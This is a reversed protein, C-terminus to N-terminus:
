VDSVSAGTGGGDPIPSIPRFENDCAQARQEGKKLTLPHLRSKDVILWAVAKRERRSKWGALKRCSPSRLRLRCCRQRALRDTAVCALSIGASTPGQVRSWTRLSSQISSSCSLLLLAASLAIVLGTGAPCCSAYVPIDFGSRPHVPCNWPSGNLTATWDVM